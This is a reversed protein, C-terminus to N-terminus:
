DIKNLYFILMLFISCTEIVYDTDICNIMNRTLYWYKMSWIANISSYVNRICMYRLKAFGRTHSRKRKEAFTPTRKKIIIYSTTPKMDSRGKLIIDVCKRRIDSQSVSQTMGVPYIFQVNKQGYTRLSDFHRSAFLMNSDEGETFLYRIYRHRPIGVFSLIKYRLLARWHRQLRCLNYLAVYLCAMVEVEENDIAGHLALCRNICHSTCISFDRTRKRLKRLALSQNKMKEYVHCNFSPIGFIHRDNVHMLRHINKRNLLNNLEIHIEDRLQHTM